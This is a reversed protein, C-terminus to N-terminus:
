QNEDCNDCQPGGYSPCYRCPSDGVDDVDPDFHFKIKGGYNEGCDNCEYDDCM